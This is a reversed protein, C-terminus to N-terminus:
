RAVNVVIFLVLCVGVIILIRVCTHPEYPYQRLGRRHWEPGHRKDPRVSTDRRRHHGLQRRQHPRM